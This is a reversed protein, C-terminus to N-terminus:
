DVLEYEWETDGAIRRRRVTEFLVINIKGALRIVIPRWAWWDHWRERPNTRTGAWPSL